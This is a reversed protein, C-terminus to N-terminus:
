YSQENPGQDESLARLLCLPLLQAGESRQGGEDGGIEDVVTHTSSMFAQCETYIPCSLRGPDRGSGIEGWGVAGGGGRGSEGEGWEM